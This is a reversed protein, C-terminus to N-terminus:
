LLVYYTEVAAVTSTMIIAQQGREQALLPFICKLRDLRELPPDM